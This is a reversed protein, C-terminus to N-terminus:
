PQDSSKWILVELRTGGSNEQTEAVTEMPTPFNWTTEVYTILVETMDAPVGVHM